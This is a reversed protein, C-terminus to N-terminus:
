LSPAWSGGGPVAEERAPASAPEAACRLVVGVAMMSAILSSGGYSVFPLALGKTPVLVLVVAIHWMAQMFILMTLGSALLYPMRGNVVRAIGTGERLLFVYLLIVPLGGLLFGLEECLIAFIFDAHSSPLYFLKQISEGIGM